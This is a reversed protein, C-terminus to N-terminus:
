DDGLGWSNGTVSPYKTGSRDITRPKGTLREYSDMQHWPGGCHEDASNDHSCVPCKAQPINGFTTGGSAFTPALYLRVFDAWLMTVRPEIHNRSHVMIPVMGKAAYKDYHQQFVGVANLLEVNKCEFALPGFLDKAAKTLVIDVGSLGMTTSEIDTPDLRTGAIARMDDRVRQQLRRGKAKASSTKM